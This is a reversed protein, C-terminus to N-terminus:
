VPLLENLAAYFLNIWIYNANNATPLGFPFRADAKGAANVLKAKDV